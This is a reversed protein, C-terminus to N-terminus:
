LSSWTDSVNLPASLTQLASALSTNQDRRGITIRICSPLSGDAYLNFKPLSESATAMGLPLPGFLNENSASKTACSISYERRIDDATAGPVYGNIWEFLKPGSIM